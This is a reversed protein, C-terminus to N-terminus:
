VLGNKWSETRNHFNESSTDVNGGGNPLGSIAFQMLIIIYMVVTAVVQGVLSREYVVVSCATFRLPKYKVHLAFVKLRKAVRDQEETRQLLINEVLAVPLKANGCASECIVAPVAVKVASLSIETMLLLLASAPDSYTETEFVNYVVTYLYRTCAVIVQVAIVVNALGYLCNSDEVLEFLASHSVHLDNLLLLREEEPFRNMFGANEAQPYIKKFSLVANDSINKVNYTKMLHRNILEFRQQLLKALTAYQAVTLILCTEM